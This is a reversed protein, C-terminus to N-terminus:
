SALLSVPLSLHGLRQVVVPLLALLAYTPALTLGCALPVDVADTIDRCVIWAHGIM